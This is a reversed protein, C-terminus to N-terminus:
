KTVKGVAQAEQTQTATCSTTIEPGLKEDLPRALCISPDSLGPLQFRAFLAHCYDFCDARLTWPSAYFLNPRNTSTKSATDLARPPPFNPQLQTLIARVSIRRM